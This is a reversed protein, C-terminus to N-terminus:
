PSAAISDARSALDFFPQDTMVSRLGTALVNSANLAETFNGGNDVLQERHKGVPNV